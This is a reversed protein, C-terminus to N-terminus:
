SFFHPWVASQGLRQHQHGQQSVVSLSSANRQIPLDLMLVCVQGGAGHSDQLHHSHAMLAPQFQAAGPTVPPSMLRVGVVHGSGARQTAM